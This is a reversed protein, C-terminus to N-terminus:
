STVLADVFQARLKYERMEWWERTTHDSMPFREYGLCHWAGDWYVEFISELLEGERFQSNKGDAYVPRVRTEAFMRQMEQVKANYEDRTM